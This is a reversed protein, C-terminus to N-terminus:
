GLEAALARIVDPGTGCCSGLLSAGATRWARAHEVYRAPEIPETTWGTEPNVCGTNAYAGFPVGAKALESLAATMAEPTSCNALVADAQAAVDVDDETSRAVDCIASKDVPSISSFTGGAGDRDQGAIRNKIGTERFRTLYGNLKEINSALDSM